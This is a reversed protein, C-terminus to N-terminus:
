RRAKKAKASSRAGSTKGGGAKSPAKVRRPPEPPTLISEAGGRALGDILADLAPRAQAAREHNLM